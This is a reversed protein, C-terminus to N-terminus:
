PYFTSLIDPTKAKSMLAPILKETIGGYANPNDKLEPVRTAAKDGVLHDPYHINTM